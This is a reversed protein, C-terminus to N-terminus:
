VGKKKTMTEDNEASKLERKRELTWSPHMCSSQPDKRQSLPLTDAAHLQDSKPSSCPDGEREREGQM